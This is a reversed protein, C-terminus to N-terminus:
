PQVLTIQPWENFEDADMVETEGDEDWEFQVEDHGEGLDGVHTVTIFDHGNDGSYHVRFRQGVTPLIM